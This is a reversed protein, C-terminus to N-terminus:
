ARPVRGALDSAESIPADDARALVVPRVDHVVSTRRLGSVASVAEPGLGVAVLDGRGEALWPLVQDMTSAVIMRVRLKQESAFQKVLEYDFGVLNGRWLFYTSPGNVTIVRLVGRETLGDLDERYRRVEGGEAIIRILFENAARRLETASSRVLAAYQVVEPLSFAVRLDNRYASTATVVDSEAIAVDYRGLALGHLMEEPHVAEPVTDVIFDTTGLLSLLDPLFSSSSRVAVRRGELGTPDALDDDLRTVL